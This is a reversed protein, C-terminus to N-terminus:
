ERRTDDQGQAADIMTDNEVARRQAPNLVTHRGVTFGNELHRGAFGIRRGRDVRKQDTLRPEIKSGSDGTM